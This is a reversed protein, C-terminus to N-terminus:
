LSLLGFAFAATSLVGGAMVLVKFAFDGDIVELWHNLWGRARASPSARVIRSFTDRGNAMITM